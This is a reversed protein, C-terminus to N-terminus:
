KPYNIQHTLEIPNNNERIIKQERENMEKFNPAITNGNEDVWRVIQMTNGSNKGSIERTPDAYYDLGLKQYQKWSIPLASEKEYLKGDSNRIQILSFNYDSKDDKIELILGPLGHFVYPGEQLPIENTFWATWSRGGYNTTAKQTKMSSIEKTDNEIKWRLEEEIKISFLQQFNNIFKKIETSKLDKSVSKFDKFSTTMFSLRKTAQFTSDAEKDKITRFMSKGDNVDLIFTEKEISDKTLNPKFKLEYVFSKNQSFVSAFFFILFSFLIKKCM